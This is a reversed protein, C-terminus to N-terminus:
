ELMQVFTIINDYSFVKISNSKHEVQQVARYSGDGRWMKYVSFYRWVMQAGILMQLSIFM